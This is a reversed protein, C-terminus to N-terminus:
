DDEMLNDADWRLRHYWRISRETDSQPRKPKWKKGMKLGGNGKFM